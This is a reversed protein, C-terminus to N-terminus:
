WSVFWGRYLYNKFNREKWNSLQPPFSLSLTWGVLSGLFSEPFACLKRSDSHWLDNCCPTHFLCCTGALDLHNSDIGISSTTRCTCCSTRPRAVKPRDSQLWCCKTRELLSFGSAPPLEQAWYKTGMCRTSCSRESTRNSFLKYKFITGKLSASNSSAKQRSISDKLGANAALTRHPRSSVFYHLM